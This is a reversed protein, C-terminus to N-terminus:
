TRRINWPYSGTGDLIGTIGNRLATFVGYQGLPLLPPDNFLIQQFRDYFDRQPAGAPSALWQQALAEIDPKDYWGVWGKLGQGRIYMNLAPNAMSVMSGSTHFMSWGGREVPERSATRQIQTGWDMPQFDVNMGLRGLLDATVLGFAGLQPLDMPAMVVTREGNYGSDAVRKRAEEIPLAPMAAQGLEDIDRIGCPM